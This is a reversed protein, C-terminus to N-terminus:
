YRRISHFVNNVLLSARDSLPIQALLLIQKNEPGECIHKCKLIQVDTGETYTYSIYVTSDEQHSVRQLHAPIAPEHIHAEDM